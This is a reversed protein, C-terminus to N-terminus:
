NLIVDSILGQAIWGKLLTAFHMAVENENMVNSLSGCVDTFDGNEIITDLAIKEDTQISHFRTTLNERWIMWYNSENNIASIESPEDKTLTQWMEVTNWKFSLVQVSPHLNFSLEPWADPSIASMEGETFLTADAADFAQGLSLEFIALEYLWPMDQWPISRQKHQQTLSLLFDPLHSGFDRLSFYQSPHSEIYQKSLDAFYEDGIAMLTAPYDNELVEKLRAKYAYSYISLQTEPEARGKASIWEITTQVDPNLVNEQFTYQLKTLQNM